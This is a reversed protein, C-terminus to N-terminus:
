SGQPTHDAHIVEINENQPESDSFADPWVPAGLDPAVQPIGSSIGSSAGVTVDGGANVTDPVKPAGQLSIKGDTIKWSRGMMGVVGGVTGAVGGGLTSATLYPALVDAVSQDLLAYNFWNLLVAYVGAVPFSGIAVYFPSSRFQGALPATLNETTTM